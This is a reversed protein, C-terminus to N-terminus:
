GTPSPAVTSAMRDLSAAEVELRVTETSKSLPTGWRFVALLQNLDLGFCQEMRAAQGLLLRDLEGLRTEQALTLKQAKFLAGLVKRTGWTQLLDARYQSREEEDLQPWDAAVEPLDRVLLEYNLLFSDVHGPTYDQLNM